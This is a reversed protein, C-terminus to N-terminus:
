IIANIKYRSLHIIYFLLFSTELHFINPSLWEVDLFLNCISTLRGYAYIPLFVLRNALLAQWMLSNIAKVKPWCSFCESDSPWWHGEKIFNKMVMFFGSEKSEQTFTNFNAHNMVITTMLITVDLFLKKHCRLLVFYGLIHRLSETKRSASDGALVCCQSKSSHCM